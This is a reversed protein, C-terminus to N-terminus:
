KKNIRKILENYEDIWEQPIERKAKAYRSVADAIEEARNREVICRPVIGMPPKDEYNINRAYEPNM